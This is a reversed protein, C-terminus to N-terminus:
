DTQQQRTMGLGAFPFGPDDSGHRAHCKARHESPLAMLCRALLTVRRLGAVVSSRMALGLPKGAPLLPALLRGVVMTRVLRPLGIPLTVLLTILLAQTISAPVAIVVCWRAPLGTM